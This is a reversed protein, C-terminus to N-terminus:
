SAPADDPKHGLGIVEGSALVHGSMAATMDPYTLTTSVAPAVDLAFVQFHYHHRPGAPTRPGSYPRAPGAVNPGNAAGAPPDTMGPELRTVSAPVAYMTWHLIPAGEVLYDADQMIVAYSRTAAPGKSWALGPFRNAGWRTNEIPIDGGPAFAPSTVTLRAGPKAPLTVLALKAVIEPPTVAEPPLPAAAHAGGAALALLAASLALRIM